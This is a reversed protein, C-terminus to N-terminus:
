TAPESGRLSPPATANQLVARRRRAFTVDARRSEKPEVYEPLLEIETNADIRVIGKPVTQVVTLRIEQLAYAPAALMQRLQPPMTGQEVRQQGATAVVDGQVMPRGMFNRQLAPGSGQLRLNQQAPALVVRQAPKAEAKRLTVFDGTGVGANARQFGDLRLVDLGEDEAYPGVAVSATSRKGVIEIVDGEAVGLAAITARPLRAIGRGAEEPRANAVQLKVPATEIDAM